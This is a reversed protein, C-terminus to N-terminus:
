TPPGNLAKAKAEAEEKRPTLRGPRFVNVGSGCYKAWNKPRRRSRVILSRALLDALEERRREQEKREAGQGASWHKLSQFITSRGSCSCKTATRASINPCPSGIADSSPPGPSISRKTAPQIVAWCSRSRPLPQLPSVPLLRTPLADRPPGPPGPRANQGAARRLLSHPHEPRGRRHLPCQASGAPNGGRCALATRRSAGGCYLPRFLAEHVRSESHPACFPLSFPRRSPM